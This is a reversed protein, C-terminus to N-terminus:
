KSTKAQSDDGQIELFEGPYYKNMWMHILQSRTIPKIFYQVPLSGTTKQKGDQTRSGARELYNEFATIMSSVNLVKNKQTDIASVSGMVASITAQQMSVLQGGAKAADAQSQLTEQSGATETQLATIGQMMKEPDFDSFAKISTEIETSAITPIMGATILTVHSDIETKSFLRRIDDLSSKDVGLGGQFSRVLAKGKLGIEIQGSKSSSSTSQSSDTTEQRLIHVMGVFSSGFAAGSIIHIAKEQETGEEELGESMSWDDTIIRDKKDPHMQNWVRVAKDVDIVLPAFMAVDRHTCTATIILTGEIDHTQIQSNIQKVATSAIEGSAKVGFVHGSAAVFSRISSMQNDVSEKNRDFGFYQVNLKISDAGLDLAEIKSRIWNIPSEYSANVTATSARLPQLVAEQEIRVKAYNAAALDINKDVEKMKETLDDTDINLNELEQATMDLSRKMSIQSNLHDHAIDIKGTAESMAQLTRMTAPDVISGLTLNPIYPLAISM